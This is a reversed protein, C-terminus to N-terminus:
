WFIAAPRGVVTAAEAPSKRLACDDKGSNALYEERNVTQEAWFYQVWGDLISIPPIPGTTL